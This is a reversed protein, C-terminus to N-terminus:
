KRSTTTQIPNQDLLHTKLSQVLTEHRRLEAEFWEEVKNDRAAQQEQLCELEAIESSLEEEALLALNLFQIVRAHKEELDWLHSDQQSTTYSTGYEETNNNSNSAHAFRTLLTSQKENEHQLLKLVMYYAKTDLCSGAAPIGRENM